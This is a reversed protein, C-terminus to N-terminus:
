RASNGFSDSHDLGTARQATRDAQDHRHRVLRSQRRQDQNAYKAIRSRIPRNESNLATKSSNYALLLPTIAASSDPVGGRQIRQRNSGRDSRLLLPLMAQTVAIVGFVNTEYVRRVSRLIWGAPSQGTKWPSVPMTSWSRSGASSPASRSRPRVSDHGPRNFTSGPLSAQAEIGEAQLSEAAKKGWDQM